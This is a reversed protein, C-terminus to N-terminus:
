QWYRGYERAEDFMAAINEPPVEAQINHVSAVTYGGGKGLSDIMRRVERRVEEPTGFPLVRHTDIGGWFSLRNGFEKKLQLPDMNRASVQIPNLCDIGADILDEILPRVSGCSHYWVKAGCRSKLAQIMRKHRPKILDRYTQPSMFPAGQAAVDDGFAIMDIDGKAEDIAREAIRIWVDAIRDMLACAFEPNLSLDMLWEAFGRMFQCHHVIGVPLNLILAYDANQRLFRVKEKLGVYLSTTNPDPWEFRELVEQTPDVKQFPGDVNIFHGDPARKWTVGWVDVLTESDIERSAGGTFDGLLIPRTDIDFRQLVREDPIVTRSRKAMFVIEQRIDLYNQLREYAPQIITTAITSGFDVPVRDPEQLNLVALVRERHNMRAKM